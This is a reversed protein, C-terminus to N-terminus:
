VNTQDGTDKNLVKFIECVKKTDVVESDKTNYYLIRLIPIDKAFNDYSFQSLPEYSYTVNNRSEGGGGALINATEKESMNGIRLSVGLVTKLEELRDYYKEYLNDKINAIDEKSFLEEDKCIHLCHILEHALASHFPQSTIIEAKKSLKNVGWIKCPLTRNNKSLFSPVIVVIYKQAGHVVMLDEEQDSEMQLFLIKRNSKSAYYYIQELILRGVPNQLIVDLTENVLALFSFDASCNHLINEFLGLINQYKKKKYIM